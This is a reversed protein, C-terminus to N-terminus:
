KSAFLVPLITINSTTGNSETFATSEGIRTPFGSRLSRPFPDAYARCGSRDRGIPPNRRPSHTVAYLGLATSPFVREKEKKACGPGDLENAIPIHYFLHDIGAVLRRGDQIFVWFDNSERTQEVLFQLINVHKHVFRSVM